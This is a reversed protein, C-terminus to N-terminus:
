FEPTSEVNVPVPEGEPEAQGDAPVESGSDASGGDDGASEAAAVEHYATLGSKSEDLEGEQSSLRAELDIVSQRAVELEAVTADVAQQKENVESELQALEVREYSVVKREVDGTDPNRRLEDSM